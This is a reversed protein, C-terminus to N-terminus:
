MCACMAPTRARAGVYRLTAAPTLLKSLDVKALKPNAKVVAADVELMEAHGVMEAVTRFGM